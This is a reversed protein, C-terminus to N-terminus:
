ATEETELGEQDNNDEVQDQLEQTEIEEDSETTEEPSEDSNLYTETFETYQETTNFGTFKTLAEDTKFRRGIYTVSNVSHGVVETIQARKFGLFKMGFYLRVQEQTWEKKGISKSGKLQALVSM